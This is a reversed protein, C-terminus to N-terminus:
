TWQRSQGFLCNPIKRPRHHFTFGKKKAKGQGMLGSIRAFSLFAKPRLSVQRRVNPCMTYRPKKTPQGESAFGRGRSRGAGPSELPISVSM